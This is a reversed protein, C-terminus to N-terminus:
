GGNAGDVGALRKEVEEEDLCGRVGVDADLVGVLLTLPAPTPSSEVTSLEVITATISPLPEALPSTPMTESEMLLGM